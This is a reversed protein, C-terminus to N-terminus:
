KHNTLKNKRLTKLQSSSIKTIRGRQWIFVDNWAKRHEELARAVGEKVGQDIRDFLNKATPKKM